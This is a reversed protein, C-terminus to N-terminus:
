SVRVVKLDDVRNFDKDTTILACQQQICIAAIFLDLKALPKGKAMLAKELEISKFSADADFPLITISKFFNTITEKEREKIGSLVEHVTISTVGISEKGIAAKIKRGLEDGLFFDIVASSDLVIM